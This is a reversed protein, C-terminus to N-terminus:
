VHFVVPSEATTSFASSFTKHKYHKKKTLFIDIIRGYSFDPMLYGWKPSFTLSFSLSPADRSRVIQLRLELPLKRSLFFKQSLDEFKEQPEKQADPNPM